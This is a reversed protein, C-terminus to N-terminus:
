GRPTVPGTAGGRRFPMAQVKWFTLGGPDREEALGVVVETDTEPRYTGMLRDWVSTLVGYNSEREGPVISHHIGHLRPTPVWPAIAGDLRAGLDLNAHHFLSALLTLGEWVALTVPEIGLVFVQAARWIVSLALEGFHFRLATSADMDLDAHHAAHFRWLFPVRHNLVHWIWLTADLLIVGVVVRAALPLATLGALAFGERQVLHLVPLLLVFRLPAAVLQGLGFTAANRTARPAPREAQRRLPRRQEALMFALVGGAALVVGVGPISLFRM